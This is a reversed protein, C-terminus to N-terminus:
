RRNRHKRGVTAGLLGLGALLMSVTTTEPVPNVGCYGSTCLMYTSSNTGMAATNAPSGVVTVASPSGSFVQPAGDAPALFLGAINFHGGADLNRTPQFGTTGWDFAFIATGAAQDITISSSVMAANPDLQLMTAELDSLDTKPAPKTPDAGFEGYWGAAAVRLTPDFQLTIRGSVIASFSDTPPDIVDAIMVTTRIVAKAAAAPPAILGVVGLVTGADSVWERVEKYTENESYGWGFFSLIAAHSPAVHSMGLLLAALAPLALRSAPLGFPQLRRRADSPTKRAIAM